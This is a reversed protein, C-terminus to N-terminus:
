ATVSVVHEQAEARRETSDRRLTGRGKRATEAGRRRARRGCGRPRRPRMRAATGCRDCRGERRRRRRSSWCSSAPFDPKRRPLPLPQSSLSSTPCAIKSPGRMFAGDNSRATVPDELARHTARRSHAGRAASRDRVLSRSNIAHNITYGGPVGDGAAPGIRPRGSHSAHRV